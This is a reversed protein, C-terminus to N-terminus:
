ASGFIKRYSNDPESQGAPSDCMGAVLWRKNFHGLIQKLSDLATKYRTENTQEV